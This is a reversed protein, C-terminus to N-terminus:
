LLVREWEGDERKRLEKNASDLDRMRGELAREAAALATQARDLRRVLIAEREDAPLHSFQDRHM